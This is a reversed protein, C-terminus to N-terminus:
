EQIYRIINDEKYHHFHGNVGCSYIKQRKEWVSQIFLNDKFMKNGPHYYKHVSWVRKKHRLINNPKSKREMNLSIKLFFFLQYWKLSWLINHSTHLAVQKTKMQTPFYFRSHFARDIVCICLQRPRHRSQPQCLQKSTKEELTTKDHSQLSTRCGQTVM